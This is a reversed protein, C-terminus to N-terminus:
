KKQNHKLYNQQKIGQSFLMTFIQNGEVNLQIPIFPYPISLRRCNGLLLSFLGYFFISVSTPSTLFFYPFLPRFPSFLHFLCLFHSFHSLSLFPSLSLSFCVSISVSLFALLYTSIHLGLSFPLLYLLGLNMHPTYICYECNTAAFFM